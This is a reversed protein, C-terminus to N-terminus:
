FTLLFGKLNVSHEMLIIGESPKECLYTGVLNLFLTLVPVHEPSRAPSVTFILTLFVNNLILSSFNSPHLYVQLCTVQVTIHEM